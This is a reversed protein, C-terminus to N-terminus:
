SSQIFNLPDPSSVLCRVPLSYKSYLIVSPVLGAAATRAPGRRQWLVRHKQAHKANEM